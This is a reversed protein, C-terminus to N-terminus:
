GDILEKMTYLGNEKGTIMKAANLAGSAFLTKSRASHSITIIEDNGAFIVQHEGTINGGRISQIGIENKTRKERKSHRDYEYVPKTELASSISDAIMLATGSPADVKQNHHMELIEIDFDGGLAKAARRSLECVLNVGLSMNASFFVPIEYAASKLKVIQEESLGTTAIVAPKKNKLLFKLLSDFLAPNSFDIVVDIKKLVKEPIMGFDAYVPFDVDKASAIDIGAVVTFGDSEAAKACVARGMKGLAGCLLIGTM